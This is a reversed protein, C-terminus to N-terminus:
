RAANKIKYYKNAKLHWSDPDSKLLKELLIKASKTYLSKQVIKRSTNKWKVPLKHGMNEYEKLELDIDINDADRVIKAEICDRKEYKSLLVPIDSFNTQDYMDTVAKVEDIKVYVKQVYSHDATRSEALDHFLAMKLVLDENVKNSFKSKRIPNVKEMRALTLSLLMVRITHELVNAPKGGLHQAWGRPIRRLSSIEYLLEIDRNLM